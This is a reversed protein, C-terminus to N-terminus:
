RHASKPAWNWRSNTCLISWYLIEGASATAIVGMNLWTWIRMCTIWILMSSITQFLLAPFFIQAMLGALEVGPCRSRSNPFVLFLGYVEASQSHNCRACSSTPPCLGDFLWLWDKPHMELSGSLLIILAWSGTCINDISLFCCPGCSLTVSISLSSGLVWM